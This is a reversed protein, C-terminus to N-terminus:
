SNMGEMYAEFQIADNGGEDEVDDEVEDSLEVHIPGDYHSLGYIHALRTRHVDNVWQQRKHVESIEAALLPAASRLRTACKQLESDETDVWAQLRPIEINLRVIEEHAHLLKFYKIAMERHTPNAWPENYQLMPRPPHQKVALKNYKELASRIATSCKVIAKSIQKRLKYGTSSLNAKLLEFLRQVMLGELDEVTHIFQRRRAYELIEQYKASRPTWRTEIGLSAELEEVVNTHNQLKREASRRAAHGQKTAQSAAYNLGSDLTFSTPNYSVFTDSKIREHAERYKWLLELAEVYKIALADQMPETVVNKLYELEESAWAEFNLTQTLYLVRYADLDKSYDTILSLAQKYNNFLFRSLELYRDMDWQNFHLDLYQVYHFHSAHRILPATANSGAFIRECTELDELGFGRHYLPHNELQCRHNHAHGHFANIALQLTNRSAKDQISSAAITSALSCGIDSGIAQNAGHVDLLKNITALPYKALEGSRRMEVVTQVIGHRCASIFIGTQEFVHVTDEDTSNAAKWNDTCNVAKEVQSGDREGPCLRVDHRFIDVDSPAIMYTSPFVRHDTHAANAMRKASTNGDMARLSAPCLMPEGDLKNSCPPCNHQLQWDPTDHGLVKDVQLRINRLVTFSSQHCRLQNYLELCKFSIAVSPVTPSCRLFGVHALSINALEDPLQLVVYDHHSEFVDVAMVQFQHCSSSQNDELNVLRNHKWELYREILSPLQMDWAAHMNAYHTERTRQDNCRSQSNNYLRLQAYASYINGAKHYKQSQPDREENSADSDWDSEEPSAPKLLGDDYDRSPAFGKDEMESFGMGTELSVETLMTLRKNRIEDNIQRKANIHDQWIKILSSSTSTPGSPRLVTM